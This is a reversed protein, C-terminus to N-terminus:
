GQRISVEGSVLDRIEGSALRVRLSGDCNIAEAFAEFHEESSEVLVCRGVTGSLVKVRDLIPEGGEELFRLYWGELHRYLSRAVRM